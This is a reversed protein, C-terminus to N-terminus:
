TSLTVALAGVPAFCFLNLVFRVSYQSQHSTKGTLNKDV